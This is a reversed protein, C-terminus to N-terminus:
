VIAHIERMWYAMEATLDWKLYWVLSNDNNDWSGDELQIEILWKCYDLAKERYQLKGTYKYALALAYAYKGSAFSRLVDSQCGALYTLNGLACDMFNRNSTISYCQLLLVASIGVYWYLQNNERQDLRFYEPHLNPVDVWKKGHLDMSTYYIPGHDQQQYLTYLSEAARIAQRYNGTFLSAIGCNGTITSDCLDDQQEELKRSRFAGTEPNQYSHIYSMLKKAFNFQGARQAGIAIWSNTYLYFKKHWDFIVKQNGFHIDGNEQLTSQELWNLTKVAAKHYGNVEFAAPFKYVSDLCKEPMIFSGDEAQYKLCWDIAKECSQILKEM